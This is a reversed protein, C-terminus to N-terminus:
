IREQEHLTMLVDADVMERWRDLGGQRIVDSNNRRVRWKRRKLEQRIGARSPASRHFRISFGLSRGLCPHL